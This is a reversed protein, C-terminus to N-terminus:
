IKRGESPDWHHPTQLSEACWWTLHGREFVCKVIPSKSHSQAFVVNGCCGMEHLAKMDNMIETSFLSSLMEGSLRPGKEEYHWDWFLKEKMEHIRDHMVQMDKSPKLWILNVQIAMVSM